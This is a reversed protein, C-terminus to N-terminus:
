VGDLLGVEKIRADVRDRLLHALSEQIQCFSQCTNDQAIHYTHCADCDRHRECDTKACPCETEKQM